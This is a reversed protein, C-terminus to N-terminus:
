ENCHFGLKQPHPTYHVKLDHGSDWVRFKLCSAGLGFELQWASLGLDVRFGFVKWM